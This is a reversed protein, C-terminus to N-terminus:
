MILKTTLEHGSPVGSRQALSCKKEVAEHLMPATDICCKRSAAYLLDWARLQIRLRKQRNKQNELLVKNRYEKRREHHPHSIPLEPADDLPTDIILLCDPHTGGLAVELVEAMRMEETAAKWWKRGDHRLLSESPLADFVLTGPSSKLKGQIEDGAVGM